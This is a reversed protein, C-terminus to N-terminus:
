ISGRVWYCCIVTSVAFENIDDDDFGEEMEGDENDYDEMNFEPPLTSEPNDLTEDDDQDSENAKTAEGIEALEESRLYIQTCNVCILM